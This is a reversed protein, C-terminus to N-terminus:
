RGSRCNWIGASSRCLIGCGRMYSMGRISLDRIVRNKWRVNMCWGLRLGQTIRGRFIGRRSVKWGIIGRWLIRLRLRWGMGLICIEMRTRHHCSSLMVTRRRRKMRSRWLRGRSFCGRRRGNRMSRRSLSERNMVRRLSWVLEM